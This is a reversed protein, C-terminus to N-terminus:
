GEFSSIELSYKNIVKACQLLCLLWSSRISEDEASLMLTKHSDDSLILGFPFKANVSKHKSPSLRGPYLFEVLNRIDIEAKANLGNLYSAENDFYQLTYHRLVFYRQKWNRRGFPGVGSGKKYLYGEKSSFLFKVVDEIYKYKPKIKTIEENTSKYYDNQSDHAITFEPISFRRFHIHDDTFTSDDTMMSISKSNFNDLKTQLSSLNFDISKLKVSNESLDRSTGVGLFKNNVNLIEPDYVELNTKSSLYKSSVNAKLEMNVGKSNNGSTSANLAKSFKSNIENLNYGVTTNYNVGSSWTEENEIKGRSVNWAGDKSSKEKTRVIMANALQIEKELELPDEVNEHNSSFNVESINYDDKVIHRIKIGPNSALEILYSKGLGSAKTVSGRHVRNSQPNSKNFNDLENAIIFSQHLSDNNILDNSVSPRRRTNKPIMVRNLVNHSLVTGDKDHSSTKNLTKSLNNEVLSSSTTSSNSPTIFSKAKELAVRSVNMADKLKNNMLIIDQMGDDKATSELSPEFNNKRNNYSGKSNLSSSKDNRREFVDVSKSEDVVLRDISGNVLQLNQNSCHIPSSTEVMEVNKNFLGILIKFLENENIERFSSSIKDGIDNVLNNLDAEGLKSRSNIDSSIIEIIFFIFFCFFIVKNILLSVKM